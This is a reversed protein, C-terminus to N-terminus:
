VRREESRMDRLRLDDNFQDVAQEFTLRGVKPAALEVGASIAHLEAQKKNKQLLAHSWSDCRERCKKNGELWCIYWRGADDRVRLKRANGPSLFKWIGNVKVSRIVSVRRNAM